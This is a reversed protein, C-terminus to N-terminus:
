HVRDSTPVGPVVVCDPGLLVLTSDAEAEAETTFPGHLAGSKYLEELYRQTPSLGITNGEPVEFWYFVSSGIDDTIIRVFQIHIAEGVKRRKTKRKSM